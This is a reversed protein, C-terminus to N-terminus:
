GNGSAPVVKLAAVGAFPQDGVGVRGSEGAKSIKVADVQEGRGSLAQKEADEFGHLVARGAAGHEQRM